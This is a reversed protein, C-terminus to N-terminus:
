EVINTKSEITITNKNSGYKKGMFLIDNPVHFSLTLPFSFSRSQGSEQNLKKIWKKENKMFKKELTFLKLM